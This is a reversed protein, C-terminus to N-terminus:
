NVGAGSFAMNLVVILDGADGNGVQTIQLKSGNSLVFPMNGAKILKGGLLNAVAGDQASLIEHQTADNTHIRVSTLLNGTTKCYICFQTIMVEGPGMGQCIDYTGANRNLPVLYSKSGMTTPQGAFGPM